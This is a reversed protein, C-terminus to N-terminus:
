NKNKVKFSKNKKNKSLLTVSVYDSRICRKIIKKTTINRVVGLNSIEYKDKFGEIPFLKWTIAKKLKEM